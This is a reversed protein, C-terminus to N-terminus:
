LENELEFHANTVQRTSMEKDQHSRYKNKAM